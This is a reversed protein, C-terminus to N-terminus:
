APVPATRTASLPLDPLLIIGHVRVSQVTAQRLISVRKKESSVVPAVYGYGSTLALDSGM